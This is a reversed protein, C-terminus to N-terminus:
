SNLANSATFLSSNIVHAERPGSSLAKFAIFVELNHNVDVVRLQSSLARSAIFLKPNLTTSSLFLEM